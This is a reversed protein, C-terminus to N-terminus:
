GLGLNAYTLRSVKITVGIILRVDGASAGDPQALLRDTKVSVATIRSDDGLLCFHPNTRSLTKDDIAFKGATAGNPLALADFLTLLRNDIDYRQGREMVGPEGERLFLIDLECTLCLSERVLPVFHLDGIQTVAEAENWPSAWPPWGWEPWDTWVGGWLEAKPLPPHTRFLERIQPALRKRIRHKDAIRSDNAASPLPGDYYLTFKM